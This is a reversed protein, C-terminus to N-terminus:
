TVLLGIGILEVQAALTDVISDQNVPNIVDRLTQLDTSSQHMFETYCKAVAIENAFQTATGGWKAWETPDSPTKHALNGFVTYIVDGRTWGLNLCLEIDSVAEAKSQDSASAKVIQTVMEVALDHNSMSVPYVDTFQHKTTFIDVITKMANPDHQVGDFWNWAEALQDMYEVGPAANFATIFFQYLESPLGDYVWAPARSELIVTKDVFHLREINTLSDTGDSGAASDSVTWQNGNASEFNLHYRSAPGSYVATDSGNGGDLSDDGGGGQLTCDSDNGILRDNAGGGVAKEIVVGYAIAVTEGGTWQDSFDESWYTLPNGLRSFHGERLDITVGQTDGVWQITDSGGGDWITQFYSEGQEFTYLDNGSNYSTNTGYLSQIALVDYLMPTTPEFNVWSGLSSSDATESMLTYAYSDQAIPMTVAGDSPHKLGLTHGIEHLLTSWGYGGPTFGDWQVASNLWVDGAKENTGPMYSHSQENPSGTTWGFRLTGSGVDNDPVEKFALNTVNAFMQLTSRVIAEQTSNLAAFGVTNEFTGGTGYDVATRSWFSTAKPFSYTITKLGRADTPLWQAMGVIADIRSDGSPTVTLTEM